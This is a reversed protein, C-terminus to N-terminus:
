RGTDSAPKAPRGPPDSTARREDALTRLVRRTFEEWGEATLAIERVRRVEDIAQDCTMHETAWLYYCLFMGTRDKGSHCHVLVSGASRTADLVFELARPLAEVCTALDGPRPPASDSLPVCAYRIGVDMLDQPHILAGDNVSLVAGIGADALERPSWGERDPGARGAIVGRRLWFVHRM